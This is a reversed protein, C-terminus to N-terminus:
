HGNPRYFLGAIVHLAILWVCLTASQVVRRSTSYATGSNYEQLGLTIVFCATIFTAAGLYRHGFHLRQRWTKNNSIFFVFLASFFQFAMLLTTLLGLWSHVSDLHAVKKAAHNKFAISVGVVALFFALFNMIGHYLQKSCLLVAQASALKSKDHGANAVPATKFGMAASLDISCHAMDDFLRPTTLVSDGSALKQQKFDDAVWHMLYGFLVFYALYFGRVLIGNAFARHRGLGILGLDAIAVAVLVALGIAAASSHTEIEHKSPLPNSMAFLKAAQSPLPATEIWPYPFARMPLRLQRKGCM